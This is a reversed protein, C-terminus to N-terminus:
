QPPHFTIQKNSYDIEFAFRSLFNMGIIASVPGRGKFDFVVASVNKVTAPGVQVLDLKIVPATLSGGPTKFRGVRANRIDYGLAVALKTTIVTIESGTDVIADRRVVGNVLSSTVIGGGMESFSVPVPNQALEGEGATKTKEVSEITFVRMPTVGARKHKPISLLNNTVRVTGEADTWRYVYDGGSLVLMAFTLVLSWFM